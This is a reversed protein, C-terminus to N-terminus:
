KVTNQYSILSRSKSYEGSRSIEKKVEAKDYSKISDEVSVMFNQCSNMAGEFETFMLCGWVHRADLYQQVDPANKMLSLAFNRYEYNDDSYQYDIYKLIDGRVLYTCHVLDVPFIGVMEGACIQLNRDSQVFEGIPGIQEHFNSYRYLPDGPATRLYPAVVPLQLKVLETLVKSSVFNDVDSVFYYDFSNEQAFRISEQRIRAMVKLREIPWEHWIREKTDADDLERVFTIGSFLLGHEDVFQNLLQETNDLNDNTHIYLHILKKDYDQSLLRKLYEPLFREENRVLIAWCVTKKLDTEIENMKAEEAEFISQEM